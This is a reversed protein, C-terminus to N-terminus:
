GTLTTLLRINNAPTLRRTHIASHFPANEACTQQKESDAEDNTKHAGSHQGGPGPLYQTRIAAIGAAQSVVRVIGIVNQEARTSALHEARIIAPAGPRAQRAQATILVHEVVNGDVGFIGIMNIHRCPACGALLDALNKGRIIPAGGPSRQRRHVAFGDAGQTHELAIGVNQNRARQIADEAAFITAICPLAHRGRIGGLDLINFGDRDIGLIGISYVGSGPVQGPFSGVAADVPLVNIFPHDVVRVHERDDDVM